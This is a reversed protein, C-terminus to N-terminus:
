GRTLQITTTARNPRGAQAPVNGPEPRDTLTWGLHCTKALLVMRPRLPADNEDVSPHM